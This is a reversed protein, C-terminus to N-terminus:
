WFTDLFTLSQARARSLQTHKMVILVWSGVSVGMLLLLVALEMLSAGRIIELYNMAGLALPMHSMM